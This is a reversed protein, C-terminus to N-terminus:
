PVSSPARAILEEEQCAVPHTLWLSSSRPQRPHIVLAPEKKCHGARSKHAAASATQPSFFYNRQARTAPRDTAAAANKGILCARRGDLLLQTAPRDTAAAATRPSFFYALLLPAAHQTCRRHIFRAGPM